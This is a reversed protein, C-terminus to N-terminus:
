REKERGDLKAKFKSPYCNRCHSCPYQDANREYYQCSDCEGVKSQTDIIGVIRGAIVMDGNENLLTILDEILKKEDIM